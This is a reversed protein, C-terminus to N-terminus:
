KPNLVLILPRPDHVKIGTYDFRIISGAQIQSRHVM